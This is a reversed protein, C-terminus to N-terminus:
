GNLSVNESEEACSILYDLLSKKLIKIIKCINKKEKEIEM